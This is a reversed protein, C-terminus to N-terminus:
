SHKINSEQWTIQNRAPVGFVFEFFTAYDFTHHELFSPEDVIVMDLFLGREIVPRGFFDVGQQTNAPYMKFGPSGVRAM